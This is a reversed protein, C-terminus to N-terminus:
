RARGLRARAQEAYLSDPYAALLAQWAGAEDAARALKGLALARGIMAEERLADNSRSALYSDFAALALSPNALRDLHLRGVLVRSSLEESTGPCFRQLGQYVRVADRTAGDRRLENARRFRDACGEAARTVATGVKM